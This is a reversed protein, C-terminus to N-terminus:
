RPKRKRRGGTQQTASSLALRKKLAATQDWEEEASADPRAPGGHSLRFFEWLLAVPVENSRGVKELTGLFAKHEGQEPFFEILNSIVFASLDEDAIKLVPQLAYFFYEVLKEIHLTSANDEPHNLVRSLINRHIGTASSIEALTVRRGVNTELINVMRDLSIRLM